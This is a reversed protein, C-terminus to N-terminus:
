ERVHFNYAVGFSVIPFTKLPDLDGKYQQIQAQLNQQVMQDTAIDICGLGQANCVQGQTLAININPTGIFAVGVEVPFSLHGGKRPIMNGYGTTLTFAPNQSNLGFTGTGQVPNKASSYYTYDDLSFSTGADVTFTASAANQNYFLVGPSFRLGHKPFPFFDVSAGATAMNLKADVNFGNTSINDINYNFVNGVARLNMYRNLNTAAQLNVGM